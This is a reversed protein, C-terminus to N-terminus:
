KEEEEPELQGLQLEQKTEHYEYYDAYPEPTGPARNNIIFQGIKSARM